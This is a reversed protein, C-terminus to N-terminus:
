QTGNKSHQHQEKSCTCLNYIGIFQNTKKSDLFRKIERISNGEKLNWQHLLQTADFYGDKTRQEVKFSGMQRVMTVSTVM